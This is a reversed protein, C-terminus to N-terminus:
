LEKEDVEQVPPNFNGNEDFLDDFEDKHFIHKVKQVGKKRYLISLVLGVLVGSLHGEWSVGKEIPFIYWFMGGYLFIVVLSVAILKYHRRLVGSFFIFSFLLYVIGSMGIHYASVGIVWTLVGTFFVGYFLVKFAMEKYFYILFVLFVFVPITNNFLHGMSGHIFPSFLVGRLGFFTRPYVGYNTFNLGFKIEVWYVFWMIFITIVPIRIIYKSYTFQQQKNM